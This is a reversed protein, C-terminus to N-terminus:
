SWRLYFVNAFLLCCIFTESFAAYCLGRVFMSTLTVAFYGFLDGNTHKSQLKQTNRCSSYGDYVKLYWGKCLKSIRFDHYLYSYLFAFSVSNCGFIVSKPTQCVVLFSLCSLNRAVAKYDKLDSFCESFLGGWYCQIKEEDKYLM